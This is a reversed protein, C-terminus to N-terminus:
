CPHKSPLECVACTLYSFLIYKIDYLSGDLGNQKPALKADNHIRHVWDAKFKARMGNGYMLM